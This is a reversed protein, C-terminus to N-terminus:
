FFIIRELLGPYALFTQRAGSETENRKLSSTHTSLQLTILVIDLAIVIQLLTICAGSSTSDARKHQLVM